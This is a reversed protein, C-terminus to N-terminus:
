RKCRELANHAMIRLANDVTQLTQPDIGELLCANWEQLIGVLVPKFNFAKNTLSFIYSRSDDPNDSRVVFGKEELAKMTRTMVGRDYHLEDIIQDQTHRFAHLHISDLIQRETTANEGYLSLM